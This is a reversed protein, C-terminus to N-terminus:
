PTRAFVVAAVEAAGAHALTRAAAHLSAGTTMVDDVILLKKGRLSNFHAPHVAFAHAVNAQRERYPLSSQAATDVVRVLIDERVAGAQSPRLAHALLGSQNFGRERLRHASLPMPLIWDAADVAPDVWPASRLIRAFSRAWATDARFKFDRVLDAWPYAYDM